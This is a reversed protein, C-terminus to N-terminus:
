RNSSFQMNQSNESYNLIQISVHYRDNLNPLINFNTTRSVELLVPQINPHLFTATSQARLPLVSAAATAFLFSLLTEPHRLPWKGETSRPQLEEPLYVFARQMCHCEVSIIVKGPIMNDIIKYIESLM